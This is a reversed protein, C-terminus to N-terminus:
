ALAFLELRRALLGLHQADLFNEDLVDAFLEHTIEDERHEAGVGNVLPDIQEARRNGTRQNGFVQDLDGLLGAGVRDGM